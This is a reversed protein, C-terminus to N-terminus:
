TGLAIDRLYNARIYSSNFAKMLRANGERCRLEFIQREIRTPM